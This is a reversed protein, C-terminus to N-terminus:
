QIIIISRSLQRIRLFYQGRNYWSKYNDPKNELAKNYSLLAEEHRELKSLAVGRNHWIRSDSPKTGSAENILEAHKKWTM